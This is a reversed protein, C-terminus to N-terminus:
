ELRVNKTFDYDKAFDSSFEWRVRSWDGSGNLTEDFFKLLESWAAAAIAPRYRGPMTDNLWGHPADAYIKIRYSKQHEELASRLRRVDNISIVHDKEGFIGLVPAELQAILAALGDPQFENVAWDSEQAAGYFTVCAKLPRRAGYAISYRGSQCVGVMGLRSSDAGKIQDLVACVDDIEETVEADTLKVGVDGRRLSEQDPYAYFLDPAVVVYGSSALKEALDETHKVLGYREHLLIVCPLDAGGEPRALFAPVGREGVVRESIVNM